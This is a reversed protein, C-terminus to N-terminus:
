TPQCLTIITYAFTKWHCLSMRLSGLFRMYLEPSRNWVQCIFHQKKKELIEGLLEGSSRYDEPLGLRLAIKDPGFLLM